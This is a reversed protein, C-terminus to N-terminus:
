HSSRDLLPEREHDDGEEENRKSPSAAPGIISTPVNSSSAFAPSTRRSSSEFAPPIPPSAQAEIQPEPLMDSLRALEPNVQAALEILKRPNGHQEAVVPHNGLADFVEIENSRSLTLNQSGDRAGVRDMADRLSSPFDIKRQPPDVLLEEWRLPRQVRLLLLKASDRRSLRGLAHQVVKFRGGAIGLMRQHTSLVVRYSTSSQLLDVIAEQFHQQQILHDCGDILLLIRDSAAPWERRREASLNALEALDARLEALTNAVSSTNPNSLAAQSLHSDCPGRRGRCTVQRMAAFGEIPLLPRFGRSASCGCCGTSRSPQGYRLPHLQRCERITRQVSSHIERIWTGFLDAANGQTPPSSLKVGVCLGGAQLAFARHVADVVASKGIGPALGEQSCVVVARRRGLSQLIQWVDVSRGCFDEPLTPVPQLFPSFGPGPVSRRLVRQQQQYGGRLLFFERRRRSARARRCTSLLSSPRSSNGEGSSGADGDSNEKEHEAKDSVGDSEEPPPPFHSHIRNATNSSTSGSGNGLRKRWSVHHLTPTEQFSQARIDRMMAQQPRSEAAATPWVLPEFLAVDHCSSGEPLLSFQSAMARVAADADGRLSVLASAFAESVLSGQFLNHYFVRLFAQGVSDQVTTSSCVVHPIGADVFEQGLKMAGCAHLFVLQVGEANDRSGRLSLLDRLTECSLLHATLPREADELVLCDRTGHASLHLVAPSGGGKTAPALARQLSPMTLTRASLSVSPQRNRAGSLRHMMGYTLPDSEKLSAAAENYAQLLTAWEKDFPLPVMPVPRQQADIHCLPSAFLMQFRGSDNGGQRGAASRVALVQAAAEVETTPPPRSGSAEGELREVLHHQDQQQQPQAQLHVPMQSGPAPAQFRSSFRLLCNDEPEMEPETESTSVADGGDQRLGGSVSNNSSIPPTSLLGSSMTSGAPLVSAVDNAPVLEYPKTSDKSALCPLRPRWIAFAVLAGLVAIAPLGLVPSLKTAARTSLSSSSSEKYRGSGSRLDVEEADYDTMVEELHADTHHWGTRMQSSVQRSEQFKYEDLVFDEPALTTPASTSRSAPNGTGRQKRLPGASSPRAPRGDKYDISSEVTQSHFKITTTYLNGISRLRDSRWAALIGQSEVGIEQAHGAEDVDEMTETDDAVTGSDATQSMIEVETVQLEDCQTTLSSCSGPLSSDDQVIDGWTVGINTAKHGIKVVNSLSTHPLHLSPDASLVVMENRASSKYRVVTTDETDDGETWTVVLKRWRSGGTSTNGGQVLNSRVIVHTVFAPEGLYVQFPAVNQNGPVSMVTANTDNDSASGSAASNANYRQHGRLRSPRTQISPADQINGDLLNSCAPRPQCPKNLAVNLFYEDCTALPFMLFFAM